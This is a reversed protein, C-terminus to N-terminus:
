LNRLKVEIIKGLKLPDFPKSIYNDAGKSLAEEIDQMQTKGTLMFIPISKTPEDNKLQSCVQLGDIGPMMVDLLILDPNEEVAKQLGEEGNEAMVVQHGAKTLSHSVLLRVTKDDDIALIKM